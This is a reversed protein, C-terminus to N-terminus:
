LSEEELATKPDRNFCSSPVSIEQIGGGRVRVAEGVMLLGGASHGM